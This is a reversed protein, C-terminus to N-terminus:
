STKGKLSAPMHGLKAYLPCHGLAGTVVFDLGALVLLGDLLVAIGSTAGTLLVLGVIAALTGVVVRAIREAPTINITWHLRM